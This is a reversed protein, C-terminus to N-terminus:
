RAPDTVVPERGYTADDTIDSTSRDPLLVVAIITIIASLLIYGSVAYATGTTHILWTAVLAAPGGAIM